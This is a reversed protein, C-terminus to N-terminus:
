LGSTCCCSKPRWEHELFGAFDQPAMTENAIEELLEASMDIRGDGWAVVNGDDVLRATQFLEENNRLPRYVKYTNIVPLLILLTQVDM